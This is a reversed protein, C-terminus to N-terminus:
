TVNYHWTGPSCGGDGHHSYFGQLHHEIRLGLGHTREVGDHITLSNYIKIGKSFQIILTKKFYLLTKTVSNLLVKLLILITFHLLRATTFQIYSVVKNLITIFRASM